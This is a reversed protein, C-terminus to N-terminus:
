QCMWVCRCRSCNFGLATRGIPVALARRDIDDLLKRRPATVARAAQYKPKQEDLIKRALTKNATNAMEFSEYSRWIQEIQQTPVMIARQFM